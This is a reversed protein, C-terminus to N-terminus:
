PTVEGPLGLNVPMEQLHSLVAGEAYEGGVLVSEMQESSRGGSRM